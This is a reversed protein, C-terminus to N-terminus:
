STIFAQHDVRSYMNNNVFEIVNGKLLLVRDWMLEATFPLKVPSKVSGVIFSTLISASLFL